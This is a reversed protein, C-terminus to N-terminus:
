RKAGLLTRFPIDFVIISALNDVTALSFTQLTAYTAIHHEGRSGTSLPM